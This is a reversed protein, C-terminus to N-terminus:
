SAMKMLKWEQIQYFLLYQFCFLNKKKRKQFGLMKEKRQSFAFLVFM